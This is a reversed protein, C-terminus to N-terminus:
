ANAPEDEAALAPVEGIRVIISSIAPDARDAETLRRRWNQIQSTAAAREGPERTQQLRALLALGENEARASPKGPPAKPRPPPGAFTDWHKLLAEPTAAAKPWEARYRGLRIAIDDPSAGKLKLDRVIGGVRSKESKTVPTLGFAACVSDWIPDTRKPKDAEDPQTQSEQGNGGQPSLPTDPLTRTRTRTTPFHPFAPNQGGDPANDRKGKIRDLQYARWNCITVVDGDMTIAGDALANKLMLEISRASLKYKAQLASQRVKARGARGVLKVHCLLCVWALRSGDTHEPDDFMASDLWDAALALWPAHISM